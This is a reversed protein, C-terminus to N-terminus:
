RDFKLKVVRPFRVPLSPMSTFVVECQGVPKEFYHKKRGAETTTRAIKAESFKDLAHQLDQATLGSAAQLEKGNWDLVLSRFPRDPKDSEEYGIIPLDFTDAPRFKLWNSSRRLEYPSNLRKAVIGEIEHAEVRKVLEELPQQHVVKIRDTEHINEELVRKRERLPLSTLNQGELSLIDFVHYTAPNVKATLSIKFADKVHVRGAISRFDGNSSCMEGDLLFESPYVKIRIHPPSGERKAYTGLAETIEPFQRTYDEGSRGILRVESGNRLGLMRVGDFKQEFCYGEAAPFHGWTGRECLMVTKDAM